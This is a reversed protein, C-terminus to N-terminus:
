GTGGIDDTGEILVSIQGGATASVIAGVTATLFVHQPEAGDSLSITLPLPNNAAGLGFVGEFSGTSLVTASGLTTAGLAWTLPFNNGANTGWHFTRLLTAGNPMKAMLYVDGASAAAGSLSYTSRVAWIGEHHQRPQTNGAAQQATLTAM